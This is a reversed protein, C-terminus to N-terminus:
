SHVEGKTGDANVNYVFQHATGTKTTVRGPIHPGIFFADILTMNSPVFHEFSPFHFMLVHSSHSMFHIGIRDGVSYYFYGIKQEIASSYHHHSHHDDYPHHHADSDISIHHSAITASKFFGSPYAMETWTAIPKRWHMGSKRPFPGIYGVYADMDDPHQAVMSIYSWDGVTFWYPSTTEAGTPVSAVRTLDGSHLDYVWVLNNDHKSTDEGILLQKYDPIMAVNDPNAIGDVICANPDGTVSQPTGCVLMKASVANMSSDVDIEMICGCSNGALKIANPTGKDNDTDSDLM